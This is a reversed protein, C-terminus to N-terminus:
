WITDSSHWYMKDGKKINYFSRFLKLRSLPCNTRYKDLPHPNIKIQSKIAKDTIKQRSQIALYSFFSKYSLIRTSIVMENYEQFDKLYEECIASGVIDALDEGVTISADIKINDYLMFQEYQKIIDDCKKNFIVLDRKSWWNYLNGYQDYKSGLDDLCHSMEHGLTFGVHALNYEIGRENLDIFPKQLYAMPIYISNETPTYYANVVYSQKGIMKFENWDITSMDADSSTGDLEIRQKTRWYSQKRLNQYADKDSYDIRADKYLVSPRGIELNLNELKLLAHKKTSPELWTNRKIIRKFVFLLDIFLSKTYEIEAENKHRDIYSQTLFTNFCYSLGFVPYIEKPFPTSQNKIFREYFNHYIYRWKDHFRMVQRFNIYLYYTRWKHNSWAENTSLTKIICKLYNLNNCIFTHPIKKYGIQKAMENWNFGYTLGEKHTLTVPGDQQVENCVMADLLEKECDWVYEARLGHGKGLCLDFMIQIYNFFHQKIGKKYKRTESTDNTYDDYLEYDYLSLTPSSINSKYYKVNTEDKLVSWVIPSAWSIIENKNIKGLIEYMNGSKIRTDTMDTYYKIYREASKPDLHLLSEYLNKLQINTSNSKVTNILEYYVKEQTVRFSDYQVYYKLDSKFHEGNINLWKYNIFTYYDDQPINYKKPIPVSFVKILEKEFNGNSKLVLEKQFPKFTSICKKTMNIKSKRKKTKM